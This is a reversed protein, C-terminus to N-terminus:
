QSSTWYQEYKIITGMMLVRSVRNLTSVEILMYMYLYALTLDSPPRRPNCLVMTAHTNTAMGLAVRAAKEPGPDKALFLKFLDSHGPNSFFHEVNANLPKEYLLDLAFTTYKYFLEKRTMSPDTYPSEMSKLQESAM